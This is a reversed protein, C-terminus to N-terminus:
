FDKWTGAAGSTPGINQINELVDSNYYVDLSGGAQTTDGAIVIAGQVSTNSGMAADGMVFVIGTFNPTGSFAVDGDIILVSPTSNDGVGSGGGGPTNPYGPGCLKNGTVSATCGVTVGSLNTTTGGPGGGDVWIINGAALDIDSQANAATTELVDFTDKYASPTMGFFNAFMQEPTLNAISSDNEIVDLGVTNGDATRALECTLPTDMCVPYNASTPDPIYTAPSNNSSHDTEGGSWITTAGEPNYVTASGNIVVSGRSIIPNQPDNPLPDARSVFQTITRTASGDDSFGTSEIFFSDGSVSLAVSVSGVSGSASATGITSTASDKTGDNNTDFVLSDSGGTRVHEIAAAIGAEAAEFAQKDRLSNNAISLEQRAYNVSYLTVSTALVLIILSFALTAVGQQRARSMM